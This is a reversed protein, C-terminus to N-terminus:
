YVHKWTKRARILHITSRDVGYKLGLVSNSDLSQRIALVDQTTLAPRESGTIRLQRRPNRAGWRLNDLRNNTFNEDEHRCEMGVPCGGIFADLVLRHVQHLKPKGAACLMVKMRGKRDIHLKMMQKVPRRGTRTVSELVRHLSRVRGEDSVQYMGVYNPVDRWLEM